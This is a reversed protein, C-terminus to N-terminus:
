KTDNKRSIRPEDERFEWDPHKACFERALLQAEDVPVGLSQMIEFYTISEKGAGVESLLQFQQKLVQSKDYILISSTKRHPDGPRYIYGPLDGVFRMLNLAHPRTVTLLRMVTKTDIRGTHMVQDQLKEKKDSLKARMLTHLAGEILEFKPDFYARIEKLIREWEEM